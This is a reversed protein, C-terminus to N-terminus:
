FDIQPHHVVTDEKWGGRLFLQRCSSTTCSWWDDLLFAFKSNRIAAELNDRGQEKFSERINNTHVKPCSASNVSEPCEGLFDFLRAMEGDKKLSVDECCVTTADAAVLPKSAETLSAHEKELWKLVDKANPNLKVHQLHELDQQTKAHV